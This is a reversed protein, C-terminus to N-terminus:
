LRALLCYGKMCGFCQLKRPMINNLLWDEELNLDSLIDNTGGYQDKTNKSNKKLKGTWVNRNRNCLPSYIFHYPTILLHSNVRLALCMQPFWSAPPFVPQSFENIAYSTLGEEPFLM